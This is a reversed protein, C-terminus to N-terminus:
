SVAARFLNHLEPLDVVTRWPVDAFERTKGHSIWVTCCGAALGAQVDYEGDGIMWAHEASVDIRDCALHLPAPNPKAEGDERTIVCDVKIRHKELVIRASDLSNRTIIAIPLGRATIEDLLDMCGINLQSQGAAHNEHRHLIEEAKARRQADISALWELIGVGHPIGMEARIRPFDLLPETLTGDLDFLMARPSSDADLMM